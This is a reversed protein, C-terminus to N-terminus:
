DLFRDWTDFLEDANGSASVGYLRPGIGLMQGGDRTLPRFGFNGVARTSEPLFLEFPVSIFFGKDFSGEGFVDFPVDTFTAWAGIRVGSEFKRSLVFQAGKDGALFQGIHMEGLLDMYPIQYYINVHGTTVEYDLFEFRQDYARQRVRNIDAGIALRSGYPHYLVEAGVGGFMEEFLGASVRAYWDPAPSFLYNAQLRVINGDAGEQLYQVIDTRVHPLSSASPVTIEDFNNYINKGVLTSVSLGRALDVRASLALYLQYLVFGDRGGVFERLAPRVRWSLSPYLDRNEILDDPKEGFPSFTGGAAEVQANAFIEEVSGRYSVANELDRRLVTVRGTELGAIMTVIEILEVSDPVNNAVVRSARGVNRGLQRYKTPSVFATAKLRTLHFAEGALGEKSLDVFVAQAIKEKQARTLDPIVEAAPAQDAGAASARDQRRWTVRMAEVGAKLGVVAVYDVPEPARDAVLRAARELDAERADEGAEVYVTAQGRALDVLEVEFGFSELGDFLEDVRGAREATQRDVVIRAREVGAEMRVIRVQRVPVPLSRLLVGAARADDQGTAGALAAVKV